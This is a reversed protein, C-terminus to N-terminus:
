AKPEPTSLVASRKCKREWEFELSSSRDIRRVARADRAMKMANLASALGAVSATMAFM